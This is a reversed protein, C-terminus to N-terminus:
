GKRQPELAHHFSEKRYDSSHDNKGNYKQPDEQHQDHDPKDRTEELRLRDAPPTLEPACHSRAAAADPARWM